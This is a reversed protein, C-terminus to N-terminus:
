AMYYTNGTKLKIGVFYFKRFFKSVLSALSRACNSSSGRRPIM